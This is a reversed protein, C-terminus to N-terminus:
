AMVEKLMMLVAQGTVVQRAEQNTCCTKLTILKKEPLWSVVEVQATLTDGIYIPILFEIHQSLCVAYPGPLQTDLVASILGGALMPQATRRGYRTRQAFVADMHLPSFDGTLGAFLSVDADTITKTFSAQAGVAFDLNIEERDM